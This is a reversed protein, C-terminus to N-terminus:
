LNASASTVSLVALARGSGASWFAVWPSTLLQFLSHAAYQFIFCWLVLASFCLKLFYLPHGRIVPFCLALAGSICCPFFSSAGCVPFCLVPACRRRLSMSCKSRWAAHSRKKEFFCHFVKYLKMNKTRPLPGARSTCVSTRPALHCQASRAGSARCSGALWFAVWPSTLFQFLSLAAYQFIFCWLM